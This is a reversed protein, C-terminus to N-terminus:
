GPIESNTCEDFRRDASLFINKKSNYRETGPTIQAKDSPSWWNNIYGKTWADPDSGSIGKDKVRLSMFRLFEKDNEFIAFERVRQSDRRTFRGKIFESNNWKGSDTQVGSYNFGGASSFGEGKRQEAFMIAFVARSIQKDININNLIRVADCFSLFTPPPPPEIIPLEPYSTLLPTEEFNFDGLSSKEPIRINKPISQTEITTTWGSSDVKHSIGKILFELNQPYNSPLVKQTINFTQYIKFGTLGEMTLSLNLPIFGITNSVYKSDEEKQKRLSKFIDVEKTYNKLVDTYNELDSPLAIEAKEVVAAEGVGNRFNNSRVLLEGTREM